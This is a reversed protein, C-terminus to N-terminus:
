YKKIGRGARLANLIAILMVGVDALVAFFMPFSPIAINLAAVVVKVLIAFVINTIVIKKTKRAIKVTKSVKELNDDTIIVDCKDTAVDSGLGGMAFGVDARSICPIDNVGDGCYGIKVKKGNEIIDELADVKNEPLLQSYAGDAYLTSAVADVKSQKDGSIVYIKEIGNKRLKDFSIKGNEKISDGVGVYGILKGNLAVYVTAGTFQEKAGVFKYTGAKIHGYSSDCEIGKGPHEEYNTGKEVAIKFRELEKQVAVAVPHNSKLEVAGLIHLLELKTTDGLAEVKTVRLEPKTLTGTKDFAMTNLTSIKELVGSGKILIGKRSAHGIASFYALPVSIVIACPCSIALLSFAKYLWTYADEGMIMPIIAVLLAMVIVCPTYIKAFKKIFKESKSKKASASLSVDLIRQVMSQSSERTVEITLVGNINLYGAYLEAGVRTPMPVSEGTVASTDVDSYGELVIGDLPIREGAYIEIIDGVKIKEVDVLEKEDKLRAKTSRIKALDEVSKEARRTASDEILEGFVFLAMVISAEFYAGTVIAGLSAVTMLM